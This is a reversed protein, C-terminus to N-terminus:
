GAELGHELADLARKAWGVDAGEFMSRDPADLAPLLALYTAVQYVSGVTMALRAAEDLQARGAFGDWATVYAAVLRRRLDLDRTRVLFTALDVFPNGVATDSWDVVVYGDSTAVINGPHLDGHILTDPLGVALLAECEAVLRPTAAIWAERMEPELRSGFGDRDLLQPIASVLLDLPRAQGGAAPIEAAWSVWSRQLMAVAGLAEPWTAEAERDVLRGGHDHMLLWNEAPEIAIVAPVSAPTRRWLAHTISAERAFAPPACKLFMAHGDSRVRLVAGLPGQYVMRPPEAITFGANRLREEMWASARAFWGARAWPPELPNGKGGRRDVWRRAVSRVPEPELVEISDTADQWRFRSPAADLSEVEAVLAGSLWDTAPLWTLRLPTLPVGLMEEVAGFADSAFPEIAIPSRATPLTPVDIGDELLLDRSGARGVLAAVQWIPTSSPESVDPGETTVTYASDLVHL